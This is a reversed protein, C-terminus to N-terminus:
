AKLGSEGWRGPVRLVLAKQGASKEVKRGAWQVYKAGGVEAGRENVTADRPQAVKLHIPKGEPLPELYLHLGAGVARVAHVRFTVGAHGPLEAGWAEATVSKGVLPRMREAVGHTPPILMGGAGLLLLAGVPAFPHEVRGGAWAAALAVGAAVLAWGAARLAM